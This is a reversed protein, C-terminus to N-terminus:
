CRLVPVAAFPLPHYFGLLKRRRSGSPSNESAKQRAALERNIGEQGRHMVWYHNSMLIPRLAPSLIRLLRKKVRVHWDFSITILNDECRLRGRVRGDFDGKAVMFFSTPFDVQCVELQFRLRYPLWGRTVCYFVMGEAFAGGPKLVASELFAYQWWQKLTHAQLLLEAVETANGQVTWQSQMHYECTRNLYRKIAFPM